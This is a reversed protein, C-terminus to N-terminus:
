KQTRPGYLSSGLRVCTSGAIVAAEMDGGEFITLIDELLTCGGVLAQCIRCRSEDGRPVPVFVIGHNNDAPV